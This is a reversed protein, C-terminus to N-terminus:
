RRIELYVESRQWYKKMKGIKKREGSPDITTYGAYSCM